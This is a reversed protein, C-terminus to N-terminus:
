TFYKGAKVQGVVGIRLLSSEKLLTNGGEKFDNFYQRLEDVYRKLDVLDIEALQKIYGESNNIFLKFTEIDM